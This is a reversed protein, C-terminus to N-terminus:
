VALEMWQDHIGLEVTELEVSLAGEVAEYMNSILEPITKGQSVVGPLAPIEAWYGGEDAEHILMKVKM